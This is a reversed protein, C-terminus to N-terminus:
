HTKEVNVCIVMYRAYKGDDVIDRMRQLMSRYMQYIEWVGNYEVLTRSDKISSYTLIILYPSFYSCLCACSIHNVTKASRISPIKSYNLTKLM